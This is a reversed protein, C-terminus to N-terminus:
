LVYGFVISMIYSVDDNYMLRRYLERLNENNAEPLIGNFSPDPWSNPRGYTYLFTRQGNVKTNFSKKQAFDFRNPYYRKLDKGFSKDFFKALNIKVEKGTATDTVIEEGKLVRDLKEYHEISYMPNAIMQSADVIYNDQNPFQAQIHMQTVYELDHLNAQIFLKHAAEKNAQGDKPTDDSWKGSEFLTFLKSYGAMYRRYDKHTNLKINSKNSKMWDTFIGKIKTKVVSEYFAKNLFRNLDNLNYSNFLYLSALANKGYGMASALYARTFTAYRDGQSSFSKDISEPTSFDIGGSTLARDYQFSFDNWKPYKELLKEFPAVYDNELLPILKTQVFDQVSSIKKFRKMGNVPRVLYELFHDVPKSYMFNSYAIDTLTGIIGYYIFESKQAVGGLRWLIGELHPIIKAVSKYILLAPAEPHSEDLTKLIEDAKTEIMIAKEKVDEFSQVSYIINNLAVISPSPLDTSAVTRKKWDEKVHHSLKKVSQDSTQATEQTNRGLFFFGASLVLSLALVKYTSKM